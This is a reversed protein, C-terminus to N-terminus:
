VRTSVILWALTPILFVAAAWTLPKAEDYTEANAPRLWIVGLPALASWAFLAFAVPLLKATLDLPRNWFALVIRGVLVWLAVAFARHASQLLLHETVSRHATLGAALAVLVTLVLLLVVFGVPLPRAVPFYVTILLLAQLACGALLANAFVVPHEATRRHLAAFALVVALVVLCAITIAMVSGSVDANRRIAITAVAVADAVALVLACARAVLLIPMEVHGTTSETTM